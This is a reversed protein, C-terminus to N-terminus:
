FVYDRGARLRGLFLEHSTAAGASETRLREGDTTWYDVVIRGPRDLEIALTRFIPGPAAAVDVALVDPAGGGGRVGV